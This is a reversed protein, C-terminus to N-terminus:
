TTLPWFTHGLTLRAGEPVRGALVDAVKRGFEVFAKPRFAQEYIAGDPDQLAERIEEVSAKRADVGARNLLEDLDMLASQFDSVWEPGQQEIYRPKGRLEQDIADYLDQVQPREQHEPFYGQEWLRLTWADADYRSRDGAGESLGPLGGGKPQPAERLAKRQFPKGVHWLGVDRVALEGGDDIIGGNRAIYQLITPGKGATESRDRKGRKLARILLELDDAPAHRIVEPLDSRFSVESRGYQSLADGQGLRVARTVYREAYLQAIQRAAEPAEGADQLQKEVTSAVQERADNTRASEQLHEEVMGGLDDAGDRFAKAENVSMGSSRLRLDDHWAAAMAEPAHAVYQHLPIVVDGGTAMAQELQGDIGLARAQQQAEVPELSQLYTRVAHAPVYVNGGDGMSALLEALKEPSRSALGTGRVVGSVQDLAAADQEAQQVNPVQGRRLRGGGLLAARVLAASGGAPIAAAITGDMLGHHTGLYFNSLANQAVQEVAEEAAEIGGALAVDTVARLFKNKIAPPLRNLLLDLGIKEAIATAMGGGVLALDGQVTGAKGSKEVRDAMQDVGQSFLMALGGAGGTATLAAIQSGIQGVGQFVQDVLNERGKPVAVVDAVGKIQNGPRKLIQPPDLYWPLEFTKPVGVADFLRQTTRNVVALGEGAGALVSGASGVLGSLTSRGADALGRWLSAQGVVADLDAGVVSANVPEALWRKVMTPTSRLLADYRNTQDIAEFDALNREAVDVPVGLRNSVTIARATADPNAGQAAAISAKAPATAALDAVVGDYPNAPTPQAMSAVVAEYPNPGGAM